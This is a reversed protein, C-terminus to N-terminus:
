SPWSRRCRDQFGSGELGHLLRDRRRRQGRRPLKYFCKWMRGDHYIHFATPNNRDGAHKPLPCCSSLQNASQFRAGAQEALAVLSVKRRIEELDYM